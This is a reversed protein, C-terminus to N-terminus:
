FATRAPPPPAARTTPFARRQIELAREERANRELREAALARSQAIQLAQMEALQASLVGLMQNSAQIASTQGEAAGSATLARNIQTETRNLGQAARAQQAVLREVSARSEAVWADSRRLMDELNLSRYDDPYLTRIETAITGLNYRIAQAQGFLERAASITHTVEPALQLDLSRLMRVQQEIQTIQNNVQQLARAAQLVNQAVNAPDHVVMGQAHALPLAIPAATALMLALVIHSPRARM